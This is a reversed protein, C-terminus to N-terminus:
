AKDAGDCPLLVVQKDIKWMTKRYSGFARAARRSATVKEEWVGTGFIEMWEPRKDRFGFPGPIPEFESTDKAYKQPKDRWQNAKLVNQKYASSLWTPVNKVYLGEKGGVWKAEPPADEVPPRRADKRQKKWSEFHEKSADEDLEGSGGGRDAAPENGQVEDIYKPQPPYDDIQPDYSYDYLDYLRNEGYVQDALKAEVDAPLANEQAKAWRWGNKGKEEFVEYFATFYCNSLLSLIMVAKAKAPTPIPLAALLASSIIATSGGIALTLAVATKFAMSSWTAVKRKDMGPAVNVKPMNRTLLASMIVLNGIVFYMFSSRASMNAWVVFSFFSGLLANKGLEGAKPEKRM